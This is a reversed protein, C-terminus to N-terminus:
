ISADRLASRLDKIKNDEQERAVALPIGPTAATPCCKTDPRCIVVYLAFDAVATGFIRDSPVKATGFIKSLQDDVVINEYAIMALNVNRGAFVRFEEERVRYKV